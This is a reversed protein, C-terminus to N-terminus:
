QNENLKCHLNQLYQKSSKGLQLCKQDVVNKYKKKQSGFSGSYVIKKRSSAQPLYNISFSDTGQQFEVMSAMVSLISHIEIYLYSYIANQYIKLCTTLKAELDSNIHIKLFSILRNFNGCSSSESRIFHFFLNWDLM